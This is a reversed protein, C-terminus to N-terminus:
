GGSLAQMVYVESGPALPDSLHIRDRVLQGDVFIAVHHRVVGREDLIYGRLRPNRAFAEDLADRLTSGEVDQPPCPVLRALQSTFAVHVM